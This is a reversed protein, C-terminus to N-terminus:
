SSRISKNKIIGKDLLRNIEVQLEKTTKMLTDKVKDKPPPIAKGIRLHVPLFRPLRKGTPLVKHSNIIAVPLLTAGTRAALFAAGALPQNVRGNSQRTGDLFVGTAWGQNILYSAIKIAERDSAGRNVPYAGCARILLGLIPISFLEKKAMFAVPRGLAHGLLPPDLYSGHNAVVILPGKIPVNKNGITAGKLLVRFIPLVFIYSVLLYILSPRPSLLNESNKTM